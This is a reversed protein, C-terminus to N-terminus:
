SPPHLRLATHSAIAMFDRDQGLVAVNRRIAVSAILCDTLSRITAGNARCVRYLAAAGEYDGLGEVPLNEFRLLFRQIQAAHSEDRAGSLIEMVVPDTTVVQDTEILRRLELHTRSGTSRLFEVFASTDVLIV